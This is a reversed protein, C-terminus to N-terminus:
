PQLAPSMDELRPGHLTPLGDSSQQTDLSLPCRPLEKEVVPGGDFAM